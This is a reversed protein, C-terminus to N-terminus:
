SHPAFTLAPNKFPILALIVAQEYFALRDIVDGTLIGVSGNQQKSNSRGFIRDDADGLELGQRILAATEEPLTFAATRSMGTRAGDTIVVWAFAEMVGRASDIGGEIGVWVDGDPQATHAARARNLAGQRTEEDSMPQDSVSSPVSVGTVVYDRGAFMRRFGNLAANIKVPNTSAVVIKHLM